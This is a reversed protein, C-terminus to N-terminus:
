SLPQLGVRPLLPLSRLLQSQSEGDLLLEAPTQPAGTDEYVLERHRSLAIPVDVALAGGCGLLGFLAGALPGVLLGLPRQAPNAADGIIGFVFGVATGILLCKHVSPLRPYNALRTVRHIAAREITVARNARLGTNDAAFIQLETDTASQIQGSVIEGRWLRVEVPTNPKLNVVKQWDHKSKACLSPVFLVASLFVYHMRRM